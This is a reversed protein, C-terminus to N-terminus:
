GPAVGSYKGGSSAGSGAIVGSVFTGHGAAADSNPLNEVPAPNLFGAPASQTDVLRVNQVVKGSLDPHTTNIGTDLVAVTVNRGSVPLGNNKTSLDRDVGVRQIGTTKFY